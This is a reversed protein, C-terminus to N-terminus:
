AYFKTLLRNEFEDGGCDHIHVRPLQLLDANRDVVGSINCCAVSFGAEQVLAVTEPDYDYQKGFPYSFSKVSGGLIEELRVKSGLIEKRQSDISLSALSPHNVTHAGIEIGVGQALEISENQDLIRHPGPSSSIGAWARLANMVKNQDESSLPHILQWLQMYLAHRFTPPPQAARWGAYQHYDVEGYEAVQDLQWSYVKGDVALDLQDPLPHATLLLSTLEDWWFEQPCGITGTVLFVTASVDFRELLPLAVYLNDAYGDDFTIVISRPTLKGRSHLSQAVEQLSRPHFSRRLIALHEAFHDPTVSLSWPDLASESIRHYVLILAGRAFRYKLQRIGKALFDDM